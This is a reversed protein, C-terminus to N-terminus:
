EEEILQLDPVRFTRTFLSTSEAPYFRVSTRGSPLRWEVGARRHRGDLGLFLGQIGGFVKGGALAREVLVKKGLEKGNVDVVKM